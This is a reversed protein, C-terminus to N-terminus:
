LNQDGYWVFTTFTGVFLTPDPKVIWIGKVSISMIRLNMHLFDSNEM